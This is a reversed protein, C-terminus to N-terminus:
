KSEKESSLYQKQMEEVKKKFDPFNKWLEQDCTKLDPCQICSELKRRIACPRITCKKVILSMKEEKVKCGWCSVIEPDFDLGSSEKMKWEEYVKKKADIDNEKTAKFLPCDPECRFGCYTYETLDLPAAGKATEEEAFLPISCLVCGASALQACQKLFERRSACDMM